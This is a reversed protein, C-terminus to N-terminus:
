ITIKSSGPRRRTLRFQAPDVEKEETEEDDDSDETTPRKGKDLPQSSSVHIESTPETHPTQETPETPETRPEEQHVNEDEQSIPPVLMNKKDIFITQQELSMTMMLGDKLLLIHQKLDELLSIVESNSSSPQASSKRPHITFPSVFKSQDRPTRPTVPTEHRSKTRFELVSEKYCWKGDFFRLNKREFYAKSFITSTSMKQSVGTFPIKFHAFISTLTSM